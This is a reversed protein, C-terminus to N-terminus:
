GRYEGVADKPHDDWHETDVEFTRNIHEGVLYPKGPAVVGGTAYAKNRADNISVEGGAVKQIIRVNRDLPIFAEHGAIPSPKLKLSFIGYNKDLASSSFACPVKNSTIYTIEVEVEEGTYEGNINDYRQLVLTDGVKYDRDLKRLDHLKKGEKIADFFHSWSKVKHTTM